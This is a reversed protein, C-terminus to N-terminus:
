TAVAVGKMLYRRYAKKFEVKLQLAHISCAYEEANQRLIAALEPPNQRGRNPIGGHNVGNARGVQVQVRALEILHKAHAVGEIHFAM